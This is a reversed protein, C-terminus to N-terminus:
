LKEMIIPANELYYNTARLLEYSIYDDVEAEDMEHSLVDYLKEYSYIVHEGDISIGVICPDYKRRPEFCLAQSNENM